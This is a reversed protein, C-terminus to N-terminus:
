FGVALILTIGVRNEFIEARSFEIGIENRGNLFNFNNNL